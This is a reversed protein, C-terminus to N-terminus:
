FAQASSPSRRRCVQCILQVAGSLLLFLLLFTVLWFGYPVFRYILQAILFILGPFSYSHMHDM